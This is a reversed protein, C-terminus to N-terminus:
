KRIKRTKKHKVVRIPKRSKKNKKKGGAQGTREMNEEQILGLRRLLALQSQRETKLQSQRKAERNKIIEAKRSQISLKPATVITQRRKQEAVPKMLADLITDRDSGMGEEVDENIKEILNDYLDDVSFLLDGENFLINSYTNLEEDSSIIEQYNDQEFINDFKALKYLYDKILDLDEYESKNIYEIYDYLLHNHNKYCSDKLENMAYMITEVSIIEKQNLGFLERIDEEQIGSYNIISQIDIDEIYKDFEKIKQKAKSFDLEILKTYTKREPIKIESKPSLLTQLQDVDGYNIRQKIPTMFGDNRGGRQKTEIIIKYKNIMYDYVENKIYLINNFYYKEPLGTIENNASNNGMIIGKDDIFNRGEIKYNYDEYFKKYDKVGIKERDLDRNIYNNTLIDVADKDTETEKYNYLVKEISYDDICYNYFYYYCLKSDLENDKSVYGIYDLIISGGYYKKIDYLENELKFLEKEINTFKRDILQKINQIVIENHKQIDKIDVGEIVLINNKNKFVFKKQLSLILLILNYLFNIDIDKFYMYIKYNQFFDKTRCIDKYKFVFNIFDYYKFILLMILNFYLKKNQVLFNVDDKYEVMYDFLVDIATNKYTFFNKYINIFNADPLLDINQIYSQFLGEINYSVEPKIYLELNLIDRSGSSRNYCVNISNTLLAFKYLFTDITILTQNNTYDLSNIYYTDFIRSQDGITKLNFIIDYLINKKKSVELQIGSVFTDIFKILSNFKKDNVVTKNTSAKKKNAQIYSSINSVSFNNDNLVEKFENINSYDDYNDVKKYVLNINLSNNNKKNILICIIEDDYMYVPFEYYVTTDLLVSKNVVIASDLIDSMYTFTNFKYSDKLNSTDVVLDNNNFLDFYDRKHVKSRILTKNTIYNNGSYVINNTLKLIDFSFIDKSDTTITAVDDINNISLIQRRDIINVLEKENTKGKYIMLKDKENQRTQKIITDKKINHTKDLIDNFIKQQIKSRSKTQKTDDGGGSFDHKLDIYRLLKYIGLFEKKYRVIKKNVGYIMTKYIEIKEEDLGSM